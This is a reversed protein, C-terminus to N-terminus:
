RRCRPRRLAPRLAVALLAWGLAGKGHDSLTGRARFALLDLLALPGPPRRLVVQWPLGPIVAQYYLYYVQPSLWVFVWFLGLAWLARWGPARGRGVRRAALLTAAALAASVALLGARRLPGLTFFSDGEYIAAEGRAKGAPHRAGM